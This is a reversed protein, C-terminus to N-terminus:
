LMASYETDTFGRIQSSQHLHPAKPKRKYALSKLVRLKVKFVM